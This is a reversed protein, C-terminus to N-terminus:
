DATHGGLASLDDRGFQVAEGWAEIEVALTEKDFHAPGSAILYGWPAHLSCITWDFSEGSGALRRVLEYGSGIESFLRAELRRFDLDIQHVIGVSVTVESAFAVDIGDCAVRLPGPLRILNMALEPVFLFSPLTISCPTAAARGTYLGRIVMALPKGGRTRPFGNGCGPRCSWKRGIGRTRVSGPGM